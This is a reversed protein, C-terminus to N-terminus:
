INDNQYNMIQSEERHILELLFNCYEINEIKKTDMIKGIIYSQGYNALEDQWDFSNYLGCMFNIFNNRKSSNLVDHIKKITVIDNQSRLINNEEDNICLLLYDLYRFIENRPNQLIKGITFDKGDEFYKIWENDNTLGCIFYIFDLANEHSLIIDLERIKKTLDCM